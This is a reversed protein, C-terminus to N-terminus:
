RIGYFAEGMADGIGRELLMREFRVACGAASTRVVTAPLDNLLGMQKISEHVSVTVAEHLPLAPEMRLLAGGLSINVVQGAVTVSERWITAPANLTFRTYCRNEIGAGTMVSRGENGGIQTAFFVNEGLAIVQELPKSSQEQSQAAPEPLGTSPEAPDRKGCARLSRPEESDALFDLPRGIQCIPAGFVAGRPKAPERSFIAKEFSAEHSARSCPLISHRV